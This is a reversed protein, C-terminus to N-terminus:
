CPCADIESLNMALLFCNLFVGSMMGAFFGSTIAITAYPRTTEAYPKAFKYLTKTVKEWAKAFTEYLKASVAYRFVFRVMSMAVNADIRAVNLM